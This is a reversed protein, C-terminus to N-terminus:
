SKGVHKSTIKLLVEHLKGNTALVSTKELGLPNGLCDTVRGGAEEIFIRAAAFDWPSLVYEFFGGYRGMGVDVLDLAAAGFRRIGHINEHFLDRITDLTTQMMVGRDYYFGTSIMTDSLQNHQSVGAKQNGSFAGRGKEAVSMTGSVPDLIAGSHPVGKRYYAVSVAFRPIGFAFNNTGDLPDIIWLHENHIDDSYTEEGLFHHHPYSERICAVISAESELDAKTVLGQPRDNLTKGISTVGSDFYGNVIKGGVQAALAAVRLEDSFHSLDLLLSEHFHFSTINDGLESM